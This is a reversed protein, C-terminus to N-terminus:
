STLSVKKDPYRAAYQFVLGRIYDSEAYPTLVFKLDDITNMQFGQPLYGMGYFKGKEMLICSQEEVDLGTDILAFSPLEHDLHNICALVRENYDRPSEKQECAGWCKEEALLQCSINEAQLFCLKPCLEFQLMLKRLLMYGEALLNFTYLSKLNRRKKEICLRMYGRMDEFAYLAYTQEFRKLSRNQEPWLKKIEISELIFAM